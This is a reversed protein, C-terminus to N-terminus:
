LAVQKALIWKLRQTETPDLDVAPRVMIMPILVHELLLSHCIYGAAHNKYDTSVFNLTSFGVLDSDVCFSQYFKLLTKM